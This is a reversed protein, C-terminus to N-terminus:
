LPVSLALVSPRQAHDVFSSGCRRGAKACLPHARDIGGTRRDAPTERLEPANVTLGRCPRAGPGMRRSLPAGPSAGV